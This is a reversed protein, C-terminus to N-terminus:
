SGPRIDRFRRRDVGKLVSCGPPLARPTALSHSHAPLAFRGASTTTGRSEATLTTFVEAALAKVAFGLRM